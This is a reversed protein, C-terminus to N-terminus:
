KRKRIKELTEPSEDRDACWEAGNQCESIHVKILKRELLKDQLNLFRWEKLLLNMLSMFM